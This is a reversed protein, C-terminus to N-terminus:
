NTNHCYCYWFADNQCACDCCTGGCGSNWCSGGGCYNVYYCNTVGNPDACPGGNYPDCVSWSCSGSGFPGTCCAADAPLPRLDVALGALAAFARRSFNALRPHTETLLVIDEMRREAFTSLM